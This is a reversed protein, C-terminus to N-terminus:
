ICPIKNGKELVKVFNQKEQSKNNNDNDNSKNTLVGIAYPLMDLM